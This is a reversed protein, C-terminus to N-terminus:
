RTEFTADELRYLGLLFGAADVCEVAFRGRFTGFRTLHMGRMLLPERMTIDIADFPTPPVGICCGDWRDLTLLLNKAVTVRVPTSYYGSIQISTGDLLRIWPPPMRAGQAPDLFDSASTLLEWSIVYPDAESGNGTVRFRGDLELTRDDIRRVVDTPARPDIRLTRIAAGLQPIVVGSEGLLDIDPSPPNSTPASPEPSGYGSIQPGSIQPGSIKPGSIEPSRLEPKPSSDSSPSDLTLVTDPTRNSTPKAAFTVWAGLVCLLFVSSWFLRM